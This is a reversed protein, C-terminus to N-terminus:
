ASVDQCTGVFAVCDIEILFAGVLDCVITTRAPKPDSFYTAYVKNFAEFDNKNKLYVNVKVVGKEGIGAATLVHLINKLTYDTQEAVTDGMIAYTDPELAATGSVFVYDGARIAQSLPRRPQYTQASLIATKGM